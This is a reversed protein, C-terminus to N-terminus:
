RLYLSPTPLPCARRRAAGSEHPVREEFEKGAYAWKGQRVFTRVSAPNAILPYEVMSGTLSALGRHLNASEGNQWRRVQM